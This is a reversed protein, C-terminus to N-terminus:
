LGNLEARLLVLSKFRWRISTVTLAACVNSLAISETCTDSVFVVGDLDRDKESVLALVLVETSASVPKRM